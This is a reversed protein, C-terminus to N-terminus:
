SINLLKRRMTYLIHATANDVTKQLEKENSVVMCNPLIKQLNLYEQRLKESMEFTLEQKRQMLVETSLDLIIWIDPQPLIYHIMKIFLKNGKIRYRLPDALVDIFYRDYLILFAKRKLPFVKLWYGVLFEVLLLNLKLFSAMYGREKYLHPKSFHYDEGKKFILEKYFIKPHRKFTITNSFCGGLTKTIENVFTSKGSGDRGLIGVVLGPPKLISRVLDISKPLFDSIKNGDTNRLNKSLLEVNDNLCDSSQSNLANILMNISDDCLFRRLHSKIGNSARKCCECLDQFQEEEAHKNEIAKSLTYIFSNSYNLTWYNKSTSYVRTKLLEESSFYLWNNIKYSSYICLKVATFRNDNLKQYVLVFQSASRSLNNEHITYFKISTCISGFGNIVKKYDGCAVFLDICKERQEEASNKSMEKIAYCINQNALFADITSLLLDYSVDHKLEPEARGIELATNFTRDQM